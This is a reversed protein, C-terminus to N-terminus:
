LVFPASAIILVLGLMLVWSWPSAFNLTYGLGMRRQVVVTSDDPNYYIVGARWCENPTSDMPESPTAMLNRMVMILPILMAPPALAVVAVPIGLPAQLAILSFLVALFYQVGIMLGLMNRRARSRRSGFWGALAMILFWVCLETGLILLGYVGRTTREAWRNPQGSASWHVPFREPISNWNVHLWLAVGLIIAFPGAALWTFQPLKDPATTLGAERPRTYQVAEPALKRHEWYFSGLAALVTGMLVVGVLANLSEQPALWLAAAGALVVFGVMARFTRIAHRGKPSARFDPRVPVAFLLEGRTMNPIAFLVAGLFLYIAGLILRM